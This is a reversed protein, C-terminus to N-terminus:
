PDGGDGTFCESKWKFCENEDSNQVIKGRNAKAKQVKPLDIEAGRGPANPDAELGEWQDELRAMRSPHRLGTAVRQSKFLM